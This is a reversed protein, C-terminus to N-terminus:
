GSSDSALLHLNHARSLNEDFSRVSLRLNANRSSRDSGFFHIFSFIIKKDFYFRDNSYPWGENEVKWLNPFQLARVNKLPQHSDKLAPITIVEELLPIARVQSSCLVMLGKWQGIRPCWDEYQKKTEMDDPKIDVNIRIMFCKGDQM